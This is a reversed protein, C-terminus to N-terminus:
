LSSSSKFFDKAVRYDSADIEGDLVVHDTIMATGRIARFPPDGTFLYKNKADLCLHTFEIDTLESAWSQEVPTSIYEEQLAVLGLTPLYGDAEDCTWVIDLSNFNNLEDVIPCASKVIDVDMDYYESDQEKYFKRTSSEIQDRGSNLREDISSIVDNYVDTDLMGGETIDYDLKEAYFKMARVPVPDQEDIIGNEKAHKWVEWIERDSLQGEPEAVDRICM